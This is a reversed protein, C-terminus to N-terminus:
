HGAERLQALADDAGRGIIVTYNLARLREIMEKQEPKLSGGKKRKMEVWTHWAPIFLDPVGRKVGEAKLKAGM